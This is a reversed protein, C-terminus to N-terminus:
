SDTLPFQSEAYLILHIRNPESVLIDIRIFSHCYSYTIQWYKFASQVTSDNMDISYENLPKIQVSSESAHKKTSDRKTKQVSRVKQPICDFLIGTSSM